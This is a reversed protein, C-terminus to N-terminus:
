KEKVMISKSDALVPYFKGDSATQLKRYNVKVGDDLDLDIRSLALHGIKEDYERCEKLQKQLKEKRKAAAAAERPSSPHDILDQMRNMESEYIRQMRHLYDVRLNGITDPNYRHLYVLAKFGNQKGSDFLWYIPRKGSGTVSYTQCHDKFFDTLFYNRIIERSTSGKKGLAAAIFDLNEELTAEGYVKKLWACFLGVIDDEFYDEDTIPIINDADPIFTSYKEPDWDGGAYALGDTDLSYRGFMCGIAYSILSKIDRQLDAKRVTVDKDEVEATLEDQLGYIDIFIRNLAEENAKLLNFRDSCESHWNDFADSLKSVDTIHQSKDERLEQPSFNANRVLPHKQFDWSTEFSDWDNQSLTINKKVLDNVKGSDNVIAIPAKAVSSQTFHITPCVIKFIRNIVKSNLVGLLNEVSCLNQSFIMPGCSDYVFGNGYYRISFDGTCVDSYSIGNKFYTDPNRIVSKSNSKLDEGNNRWNIIYSRNGYWKRFEGGKCYPYWTKSSNISQATNNCNFDISKINVENWLRLYRGNDSTALGQKPFSIDALLPFNEFSKFVKESVWYAIPAGPIKSFNDQEPYYRNEKKHFEPEKEARRSYCYDVLRIASMKYNMHNKLIIWSVIPNHGVKGDFLETGFDVLSIVSASKQIYKRLKEFSSLVMWSSTTIFATYSDSSGLTSLAQKYMVMSLDAKEDPYNEKVYNDLKNSFRSSGLYPPNAIVVMYQQALSQGIAILKLLLRQTDELGISNIDIQKETLLDLVFRSLLNWNYAKVKLVSGYEKADTFTDLLEDIQDLARTREVDNLKNGFYRLHARNINNSEVISYIHPSINRTFIRRDYQRAKMMVAFYALQTARDSIDLGYLNNKLISQAADRQSYGQSEYIQMLVEFMYVLIHGSGMCPDIVRIDEPRLKKREQRISELQKVVEPEQEAEDIFYKWNAKLTDDPHGDLWLRGLSNEVMYKIPWDPTYITTAAPLLEKSIRSKSMNGDYVQENLETNYSQYLWGIIEVQGGKKVNFDDEPIDNVLRNIVGEKDIVSLNLLLETYDNTKEFLGPLAENLANCQKIFLLRFLEDLQNNLKMEYIAQQEEDTFPLDADFPTSVLDPETRGTESSLVRIGSPLYDNVEMFRIAILRNFWTYAVEEIVANYATKYDSSESKQEIADVLQKRQLIEKKGISYPEAAGIDYFETTKTSQPLPSQIGKETIGLLGTRYTIDSILKRRAWIAFNKIATKNM